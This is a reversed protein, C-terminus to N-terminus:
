ATGEAGSTLVGGKQAGGGPAGGPEKMVAGMLGRSAGTGTDEAGDGPGGCM